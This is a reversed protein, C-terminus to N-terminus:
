IEFELLFLMLWVILFYMLGLSYDKQQKSISDWVEPWRGVAWSRNSDPNQSM